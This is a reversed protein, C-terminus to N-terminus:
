ETRLLCRVPFGSFRANNGASNIDTSNFGLDYGSTSSSITSSWARGGVGAYDLTGGNVYGSRVFYLPATRIAKLGQYNFSSTVNYNASGLLTGLENNTTKDIPLRWGKPCISDPMSANEVVNASGGLTTEVNNTANAAAFNYFNGMTYHGNESNGGCTTDQIACYYFTDGNDYYNTNSGSMEKPVVYRYGPDASYPTNNDNDWLNNGSTSTFGTNTQGRCGTGSSSESSCTTINGYSTSDITSRIPTWSTVSNLDTDASTLTVNSDLDLDLNQTMWVNGDALKTVWYEKGDRVDRLQLSENIALSAAADQDFSQMSDDVVCRLSGGNSRGSGDAPSVSSSHFSLYRANSSSYVTSSWYLGFYGAYHLASSWVIGARVFYLPAALLNKDANGGTQEGELGNNYLTNLAGYMGNAPLNWNAPCLSNTANGSNYGNTNSSAVAASWNYYNGVHSHTGNTGPTQLFHDGASGTHFNCGYEGCDDSNYYDSRYYWDGLDLSVPNNNNNNWTFSQNIVPASITTASPTWTIKGTTEDKTYDTTYPAVGAVTLNTTTSDLPGTIDFDLNQTMWCKGDMLKAVWYVKNDRIDILQAQPTSAADATLPTTVKNCIAANMDQMAFYSTGSVRSKGALQFADDFTFGTASNSSPHVMTYKVQGVYTDSSQVAAVKAAYTTNVISATALTAGTAAPFSAVKTYTTPVALYNSFGNEITPKMTSIVESNDQLSMSWISKSANDGTNRDAWNATSITLGTTLGILDTRGLEGATNHPDSTTGSYGIAYIAYGNNDNCLTTLRTIGIGTREQGNILSVTHEDGENIVGNMTCTDAVHLSVDSTTANAGLPIHSLFYGAMLTVALMSLPILLIKHKAFKASRM